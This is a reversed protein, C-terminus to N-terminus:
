APTLLRALDRVMGNIKGSDAQGVALFTLSFPLLAVSSEPGEFAGLQRRATPQGRLHPPSASSRHSFAAGTFPPPLTEHEGASIIHTDPVSDFEFPRGGGAADVEVCWTGTVNRRKVVVPAWLGQPFSRNLDRVLVDERTGFRESRSQPYRPLRSLSPLLPDLPQGLSAQQRDFLDSDDEELAFTGADQRAPPDHPTPTDDLREINSQAEQLKKYCDDLYEQQMFRGFRHGSVDSENVHMKFIVGNVRLAEDLSHRVEAYTRRSHHTSLFRGEILAGVVDELERTTRGLADPSLHAQDAPGFAMPILIRMTTHYNFKTPVSRLLISLAPLKGADLLEEM